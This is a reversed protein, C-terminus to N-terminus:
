SVISFTAYMNRMHAADGGGGNGGGGGGGSNRIFMRTHKACAQNM